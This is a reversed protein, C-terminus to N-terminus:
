QVIFHNQVQWSNSFVITWQENNEACRSLFGVAYLFFWSSICHLLIVFLFFVCRCCQHRTAFVVFRSNSVFIYFLFRYLSKSSRYQISSYKMHDPTWRWIWPRIRFCYKKTEYKWCIFRKKPTKEKYQHSQQISTAIAETFRITFIDFMPDMLHNSIQIGDVRNKDHVMEINQCQLALARDTTNSITAEIKKCKRCMGTTSEISCSKFKYRNSASLRIFNAFFFQQSITQLKCPVDVDFANIWRM